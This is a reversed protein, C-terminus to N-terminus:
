PDLGEASVHAAIPTETEWPLVAIAAHDIEVAFRALDNTMM